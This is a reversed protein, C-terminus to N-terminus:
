IKDVNKFKLVTGDGTAIKLMKSINPYDNCWEGDSISEFKEYYFAPQTHLGEFEYDKLCKLINKFLSQNNHTLENIADKRTNGSVTRVSYGEEGNSLIIVYTKQTKPADQHIRRM